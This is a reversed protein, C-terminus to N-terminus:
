GRAPEQGLSGVRSTDAPFCNSFVTGLPGTTYDCVIGTGAVILMDTRSLACLCKIWHVLELPIRQFAIRFFRTLNGRRASSGSREAASRNVAESPFAAINHRTRVDQPNTCFCLLQGDPWRRLIQEIIAQLTAENGLNGAGFNGYFGIKAPKTSKAPRGFM